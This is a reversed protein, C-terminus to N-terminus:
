CSHVPLPKSSAKMHKRATKTGAAKLPSTERNVMRAVKTCTLFWNMCPRGVQAFHPVFRRYYSAFGLFLTLDKLTKPKPWNTVAETKAPDTAVVGVSM